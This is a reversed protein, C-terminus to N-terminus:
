VTPIEVLDVRRRQKFSATCAVAIRMAELGDRVTCPSPKGTRVCQLFTELEARYAGSFRHTFAPEAEGVPLRVGPEASALALNEDLGAAISGLEGMVELRVDHGAGNYRTASVTAVTGDTLELVAASTDVDGAQLFFDAGRNGGTAYVSTVESGTVYRIADFDHINCDLFIGGASPVYTAKPPSVDNTNARVTHVFGLIGSQVAVRCNNYGPDFRRMFGMQVMAGSTEVREVLETTEIMSAAIPKELFLPIGADIVATAISGHTRTPTACVIADPRQALLAALDQVVHGDVQMKTSEAVVPDLDCVLLQEVPEMAALKLAHLFGIRGVGM